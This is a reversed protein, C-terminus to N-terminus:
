GNVFILIFAWRLTTKSVPFFKWLIENFKIWYLAFNLNQAFRGSNTM